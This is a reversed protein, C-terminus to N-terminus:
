TAGPGGTLADGLAQTVAAKGQEVAKSAASKASETIQEGVPGVREREIETVPLLLGVLFGVAVSGIAVGLPNSSAVTRLTRVGQRADEASPLRDRAQAVADGVKSVQGKIADVRDAVADRARARVDTKYAIAEVTDGMRSRTEEIERQIIEPNEEM